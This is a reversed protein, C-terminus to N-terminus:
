NKLKFLDARTKKFLTTNEHKANEENRTKMRFSNYFHTFDYIKRFKESRFRMWGM